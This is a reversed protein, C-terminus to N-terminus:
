SVLSKAGERMFRERSETSVFEITGDAARAKKLECHMLQKDNCQEEVLKRLAKYAKGTAAKTTSSAGRGTSKASVSQSALPVDELSEAQDLIVDLAAVAQAEAKSVLESPLCRTHPLPLGSVRGAATLLKVVKLGDDIKKKNEVLWKIPLELRYGDGEPGSPVAMGTVPDLFVLRYRDKVYGKVKSVLKKVMSSQSEELPLLVFLRPCDLEGITLSTLSIDHSSVQKRVTDFESRLELIMQMVQEVMKQGNESKALQERAREANAEAIQNCMKAGDREEGLEFQEDETANPLAADIADIFEKAEHAASDVAILRMVMSLQSDDLDSSKAMMLELKELMAVIGTEGEEELVEEKLAAKLVSENAGVDASAKENAGDGARAMPLSQTRKRSGFSPREKPEGAWCREILSAIPRTTRDRWDDGNPLEPRDGAMVATPLSTEASFHNQYPAEGTVVIWSLIAFAFVDTAQSPPKPPHTFLEPGKFRLTGRGVFHHVVSSFSMSSANTISASLGFDSIWPVDLPGILVNEPKLDLHMLGHSHVAEMGRAVGALMRVVEVPSQFKNKELADQLTGSPAYAMVLTPEPEIYSGYLRIVNPHRVRALARVERRMMESLHENTPAEENVSARGAKFRKRPVKIAVDLGNWKAEFVTAQGGEGIAHGVLIDAPDLEWIALLAEAKSLKRARRAAKAPSYSSVSSENSQFDSNTTGM